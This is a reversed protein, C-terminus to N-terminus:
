EFDKFLGRANPYILQGLLNGNVLFRCPGNARVDQQRPSLKRWYSKERAYPKPTIPTGLLVIKLQKDANLVRSSASARTKSM